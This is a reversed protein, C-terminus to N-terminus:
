TLGVHLRRNLIGIRSLAFPGQSKRVSQAQLVILQEHRVCGIIAYQEPLQGNVLRVEATSCINDPLFVKFGKTFVM